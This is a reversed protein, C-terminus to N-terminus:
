PKELPGLPWPDVIAIIESMADHVTLGDTPLYRQVVSLVKRLAQDAVVGEPPSPHTYLLSGGRRAIYDRETGRRILCVSGESDLVAGAVPESGASAALPARDMLPGSVGGAGIAELKAELEAIRAHQRRLEAAADEATQPEVGDEPALELLGALRLAEPQTSDTM